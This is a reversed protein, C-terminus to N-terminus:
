IRPEARGDLSNIVRYVQPTPGCHLILGLELRTARLYNLLQRRTHPGLRDTAKIELVIRDDVLMDLRHLGIQTDDYWIEVRHERRVTHGRRKLEIEIAAAYASELFGFGLKYYATLFGGIISRSREREILEVSAM